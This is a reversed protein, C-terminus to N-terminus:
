FHCNKVADVSWYYCAGSNNWDKATSVIGSGNTQVPRVYVKYAKHDNGLKLTSTSTTDFECIWKGNTDRLTVHLKAKNLTGKTNSFAKKAFSCIKIKGDLLNGKKDKELYVTGVYNNGSGFCGTKVETAAQASICGVSLVIVIMSVITLVISISKKLVISKM